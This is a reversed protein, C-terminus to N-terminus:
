GKVLLLGISMLLEIDGIRNCLVTVIESNFSNYNQYFIVLWYSVLGNYELNRYIKQMM